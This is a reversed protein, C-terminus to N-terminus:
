RSIMKLLEPMKELAADRGREIEQEPNSFDHWQTFGVLPEVLVDAYTKEYQRLYLAKVRTAWDIMGIVHTPVKGPHPRAGVNVAVVPQGARAIMKAEKAPLESALAGDVYRGGDIEVPDFVGPVAMSAAVARGINGRSFLHCEGTPFQVSTIYLPISTDSFNKELCLQDCIRILADVDAIAIETAARTYLISQRAVSALRSLWSDDEMEIATDDLVPVNMQTFADSQLFAEVDSRLKKADPNIAYMAGFLGGISSGVIASPKLKHEELVELVGLHALGRGGGGGLALIFDDSKRFRGILNNFM